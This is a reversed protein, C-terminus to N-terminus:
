VHHSALIRLDEESLFDGRNGKKRSTTKKPRKVKASSTASTPLEAPPSRARKILNSAPPLNTASDRIFAKSSTPEPQDDTLDPSMSRTQLTSPLSKTRLNMAPASTRKKARVESPIVAM